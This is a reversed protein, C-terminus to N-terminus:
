QGDDAERRAVAAVDIALADGTAELTSAPLGDRCFTHLDLEPHQAFFERLGKACYGCARVHVMTVVPDDM